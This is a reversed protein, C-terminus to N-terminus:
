CIVILSVIRGIVVTANVFPAGNDLALNLCIRSIAFVLHCLFLILRATIALFQLLGHLLLRFLRIQLPMLLNTLSIVHKSLLCVLAQLVLHVHLIVSLLLPLEALSGLLENIGLVHFVLFLLTHTDQSVLGENLM